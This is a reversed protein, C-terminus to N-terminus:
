IKTKIYKISESLYDLNENIKFILLNLIEERDILLVNNRWEIFRDFEEKHEKKREEIEIEEERNLEKSM